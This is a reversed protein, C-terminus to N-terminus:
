AEDDRLRHLGLTGPSREERVQNAPVTRAAVSNDAMPEGGFREPDIEPYRRQSSAIYGIQSADRSPVSL